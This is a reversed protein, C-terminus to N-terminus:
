SEKRRQAQERDLRRYRARVALNRRIDAVTSIWVAAIIVVLGATEWGNM